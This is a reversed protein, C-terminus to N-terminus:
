RRWHRMDYFAACSGGFPLNSGFPSCNYDPSTRPGPAIPLGACTLLNWVPRFMTGCSDTSAYVETPTCGTWGMGQSAIDQNCRFYENANACTANVDAAGFTFSTLPVRTDDATPSTSWAFETYPMIAINSQGLACPANPTSWNCPRPAETFRPMNTGGVSAAVLTWGGGNTTMDCYVQVPTNPGTGDTDITYIGSPTGPAARLLENCSRVSTCTGAVCEAGACTRGCAGCNSADRQTNVCAGNCYTSGTACARGRRWHRVNYFDNCSGGATSQLVRGFPSCNFDPSSRSGPAIPVGECRQLNWVPRYMANCADVSSFVESVRCGSWAMGQAASDQNTRFYESANACLASVDPVGARWNELPARTDVAAATTSWRYEVLGLATLQAAGVFCPAGPSASECSTSAATDFRPMNTGGSSSAILTWGGGDTVMDCYVRIPALSGDLDADITYAGSPTGPAMALLEDCSRPLRCAGTACHQNTPCVTGCAGCNTDSSQTNVCAGGCRTEGTACPAACSGSVCVQGSACVTTCSGCHSNDSQTNVCIGGTCGEPGTMPGCATLGPSCGPVCRGASCANGACCPAGCAGCNNNDSRTDVCSGGCFLQPVSCRAICVGASCRQASPCVTGCAGCNNDDTTLDVCSSGCRTQVSTCAMVCRGASCVEGTACRMGCAGCNAIDSATDVCVGPSACGADAPGPGCLTRASGCSVVCVGASCLTGACCNRGCAGCNSPDTTTDVCVSGCRTQDSACALDPAVDAPTDLAVDAPVDVTIDTPVDPTIDAPVDVTIDAPVDVTIDAPVDPQTVDDATTDAPTDVPATDRTVDTAADSIDPGVDDGGTAPPTNSSCAVFAAISLTAALARFPRLSRM